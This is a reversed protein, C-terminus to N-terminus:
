GERLATAIDLRAAILAPIAAGVLTTVVAALLGWGAAQWPFDPPTAGSEPAILTPAWVEVGVIGFGIAMVATIAGVGAASLLLQLVIQTRTAGM